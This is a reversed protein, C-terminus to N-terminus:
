NDSDYSFSIEEEESLAVLLPIMEESCCPLYICLRFSKYGNQCWSPLGDLPLAPAKFLLASLSLFVPGQLSPANSFRQVLDARNQSVGNSTKETIHTSLNGKNKLGTQVPNKM